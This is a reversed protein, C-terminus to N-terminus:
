GSVTPADFDPLDREVNRVAPIIYGLMAIGFGGIATGLFMLGMGAGAGTGVLGGFIGALAGGERMAPELVQDALPGALLYGVPVSLTQLTGQIGFIRGQLAPEVKLQWITRNCSVIIPIFFTGVFAAFMWVPTVRGIATTFDGILFSIACIGLVGHIKRKPGGWVSMVIGGLVGGAGLAARVAGMATQDGGTRALVMADLVGYYTLGAMLNIGSYILLLGLLGPRQRIYQWGARFSEGMRERVAHAARTPQPIPIRLLPVIAFTFTLLDVVMIGGLGIIGMVLGAFIPAFVDSAQQSFSRMANARAFQDKPILLTIASQYAPVQFSEFAGVLATSVYLHWVQLNGSSYLILLVVTLVAAGLDGLIILWKRSYRDALVGGVPSLLIYLSFSFFGILALTTAQKTQQYAWVILAFRTTATGFMSLMQGLWILTFRRMGQDRFVAQLTM